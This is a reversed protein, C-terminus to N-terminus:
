VELPMTNSISSTIHDKILSPTSIRKPYGHRIEMISVKINRPKANKLVAIITKFLKIEPVFIILVESSPSFIEVDFFTDKSSQAISINIFFTIFIALYFKM